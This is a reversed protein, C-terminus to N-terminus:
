FLRQGLESFDEKSKINKINKMKINLSIPLIDEIQTIFHLYGKFIGGHKGNYMNSLDGWFFSHDGPTAIELIFLQFTDEKICVASFRCRNFLRLYM